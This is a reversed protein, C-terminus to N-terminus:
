RLSRDRDASGCDRCACSRLAPAAERVRRHRQAVDIRRHARQLAIQGHTLVSTAAASICPWHSPPGSSTTMRGFPLLADVNFAVPVAVAACSCGNRGDATLSLPAVCHFSAVSKWVSSPPSSSRLVPTRMSDFRRPRPTPKGSGTPLPSFSSRGNWTVSSASSSATSARLQSPSTRAITRTAREFPAHASSRPPM